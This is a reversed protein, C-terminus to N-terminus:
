VSFCLSGNQDAMEGLGFYICHKLDVLHKKQKWRSAFYTLAEYLETDYQWLLRSKRMIWLNWTKAQAKSPSFVRLHSGTESRFMCYITCFINQFVLVTRLSYIFLYSYFTGLFVHKEQVIWSAWKSKLEWRKAQLVGPATPRRLLGEPTDGRRKRSAAGNRCTQIESKSAKSHFLIHLSLFKLLFHSWSLFCTFNLGDRLEEVALRFDRHYPWPRQWCLYLQAGVIWATQVIHFWFLKHLKTELFHAAHEVHQNAM